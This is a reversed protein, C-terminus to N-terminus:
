PLICGDTAQPLMYVVVSAQLERDVPFHAHFFRKVERYSYSVLIQSLHREEPDFLVIHSPFCSSNKFMNSVFGVPDTMFHDSEDLAGKDGSPSCDLFRMSLNSHLTSYYPTSHCPMLFLVSKVNGDQAEKSLYYMM